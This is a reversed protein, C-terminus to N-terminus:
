CLVVSPESVSTLTPLSTDNTGDVVRFLGLVDEQRLALALALIGNRERCIRKKM